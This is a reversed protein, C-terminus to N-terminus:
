DAGGTLDRALSAARFASREHPLLAPRWNVGAAHAIQAMFHDLGAASPPQM